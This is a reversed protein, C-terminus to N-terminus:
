WWGRWPDPSPSQSALTEPAASVHTEFADQPGKAYAWSMGAETFKGWLFVQDAGQQRNEPVEHDANCKVELHTQWRCRRPCLDLRRALADPAPGAAQAPHATAWGERPQAQPLLRRTKGSGRSGKGWSWRGTVGRIGTSDM